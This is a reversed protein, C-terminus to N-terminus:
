SHESECGGVANYLYASVEQPVKKAEGWTRKPVIAGVNIPPYETM